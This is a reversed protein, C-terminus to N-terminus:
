RDFILPPVHRWPILLGPIGIMILCIRVTTARTPKMDLAAMAWDPPPAPPPAPPAPELEPELLEPPLLPEWFGEAPGLVEPPVLPELEVIPPPEESEDVPM